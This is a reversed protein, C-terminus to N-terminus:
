EVLWGGIGADVQYRAAIEWEKNKNVKWLDYDGLKRDGNEDLYTWGTAGYYYQATITIAKKLNAKNPKDAYANMVVWTSDYAAISYSDPRRGLKEEIRKEIEQFNDTEEEEGFVPNILDTKIAFDAVESIILPENAFVDNGYWKISSLSDYKAAEKMIDIGEEFAIIHVGVADKGHKAIMEDVKEAVATIDETFDEKGPKYHVTEVDIMGLKSDDRKTAEYLGNGWVDDRVISVIAKMGDKNMKSTIADAQHLDNTVFRLVNDNLAMSPATSAPSALIIGKENSYDKLKSIIDSSIPGIVVDIGQGELKKLEELAIEANDQTDEIILEYRIDSGIDSFYQNADQVALEVAVKSSAGLSSLDGTIPLLAGLKIIQQAPQSAPQQTPAQACGFLFLVLVMFVGMIKKM